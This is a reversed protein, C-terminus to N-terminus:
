QVVETCNGGQQLETASKIAQEGTKIDSFKQTATAQTKICFKQVETCYNYKHIITHM